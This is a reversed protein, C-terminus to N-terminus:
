RMCGDYVDMRLKAVALSTNEVFLNRLACLNGDNLVETVRFSKTPSLSKLSRITALSLLRHLLALFTAIFACINSTVFSEM